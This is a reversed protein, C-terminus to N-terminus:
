WELSIFMVSWQTDIYRSHCVLFKGFCKMNMLSRLSNLFYKCYRLSQSLLLRALFTFEAIIEITCIWINMIMFHLDMLVFPISSDTYISSLVINNSIWWGIIHSTQKQQLIHQNWIMSQHHLYICVRNIEHKTRERIGEISVSNWIKWTGCSLSFLRWSKM